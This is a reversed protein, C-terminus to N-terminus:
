DETVPHVLSDQLTLPTKRLVKKPLLQENADIHHDLSSGM